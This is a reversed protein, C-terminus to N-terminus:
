FDEVKSRFSKKQRKKFPCTITLKKVDLTILGILSRCRWPTDILKVASKVMKAM